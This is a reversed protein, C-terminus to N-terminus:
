TPVKVLGILESCVNLDLLEAYTVYDSSRVLHTKNALSDYVVMDCCETTLQTRANDRIEYDSLLEVPVYRKVDRAPIRGLTFRVLDNIRFVVKPTKIDRRKLFPNVGDGGTFLTDLYRGLDYNVQAAFEHLTTLEAEGFSIQKSIRVKRERLLVRLFQVCMLGIIVYSVLLVNESTFM